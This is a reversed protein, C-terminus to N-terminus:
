DELFICCTYNIPIIIDWIGGGDRLVEGPRRIKEPGGLPTVSVVVVVVAFIFKM